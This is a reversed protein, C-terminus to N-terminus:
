GGTRVEFTETDVDAIVATGATVVLRGGREGLKLGLGM